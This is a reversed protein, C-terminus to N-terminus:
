LLEKQGTVPRWWDVAQGIEYRHFHLKRLAHGLDANCEQFHLYRLPIGPPEDGELIHRVFATLVGQRRYHSALEIAEISLVAPRSEGSLRRQAHFRWALSYDPANIIGRRRGAYTQYLARTMQHALSSTM